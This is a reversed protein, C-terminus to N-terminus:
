FEHTNVYSKIANEVVQNLSEKNKVALMAIQKHLDSDIRINFSGKYLKEPEKGVESCYELYDDVAKHFATEITGASESEFNVLDGIGEIKGFLVGDEHSYEIKTIYGKYKLINAM